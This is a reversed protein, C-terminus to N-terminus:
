HHPCSSPPSQDAECHDAEAAGSRATVVCLPEDTICAAASCSQQQLASLQCTLRANEAQLVHLRQQQVAALPAPEAGQRGGEGAPAAAEGPGGEGGAAGEAGESAEQDAEEAGTGGGRLEDRVCGEEKWEGAAHEAERGGAEGGQEGGVKSRVPKLSQEEGHPQVDVHAASCSDPLRRTHRKSATCEGEEPTTTLPQSSPLPPEVQKEVAAKVLQFTQKTWQQGSQSHHLTALRALRTVSGPTALLRQLREYLWSFPFCRTSTNTCDLLLARDHLLLDAVVSVATHFHSTNSVVELM